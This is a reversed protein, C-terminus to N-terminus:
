VARVGQAAVQMGDSSPRWRLLTVGMAILWLFFVMMAALVVLSAGAVRFYQLPYALLGVGASVVLLIWGLARPLAGTRIIAVGFVSYGAGFMIVFAMLSLLDQVHVILDGLALVAPRAAESARQYLGPMRWFLVIRLAEHVLAITMGVYSMTAGFLAYGRADKLVVALGLGLPLGLSPSITALALGLVAPRVDGAALLQGGDSFDLPAGPQIGSAIAIGIAAFQAIVALLASVGAIRVVFLNNM